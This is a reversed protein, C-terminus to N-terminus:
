YSVDTVKPVVTVLAAKSTPIKLVDIKCLPKGLSDDFHYVLHKDQLNAKEGTLIFWFHHTVSSLKRGNTPM